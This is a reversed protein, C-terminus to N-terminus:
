NQCVTTATSHAMRKKDPIEMHAGITSTPVTDRRNEKATSREPEPLAEEVPVKAQLWFVRPLYLLFMLVFGILLSLVMAM